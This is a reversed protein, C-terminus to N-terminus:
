VPRLQEDLSRTAGVVESGTHLTSKKEILMLLCEEDAIPNHRVGKLVVYAEGAGIVVTSEEMEIKLGDRSLSKLVKVAQRVIEPGIGDGPLVAIKMSRENM